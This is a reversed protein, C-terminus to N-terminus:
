LEEADEAARRISAYEAPSGPATLPEASQAAPPVFNVNIQFGSGAGVSGSAAKPPAVSRDLAMEAIEKLVRVSMQEGEEELRDQLLGLATGGLTALREHASQYIVSTTTKYHVLLEQFAPDQKLTSLWSQSMQLIAAIEVDRRGEAMLRAIAHHRDRLKTLRHPEAGVTSPLQLEPLDEVSLDRVYAPTAGSRRRGRASGLPLDIDFM